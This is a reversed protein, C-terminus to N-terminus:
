YVYTTYKSKQLSHNNLDTEIFTKKYSLKFLQQILIIKQNLTFITEPTM